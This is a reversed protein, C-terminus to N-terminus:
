TSRDVLTIISSSVRTSLGGFLGESFGESFGEFLCEPPGAPLSQLFVYTLHICKFSPILRFEYIISNIARCLSRRFSVRHM